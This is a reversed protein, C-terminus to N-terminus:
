SFALESERTGLSGHFSLEDEAARQIAQALQLISSSEDEDPKGLACALKAQRELEADREGSVDNNSKEDTHNVGTIDKQTSESSSAAKRRREKPSRSSLPLDISKPITNSKVPTNDISSTIKSASGKPKDTTRIIEKSEADAHSNGLTLRAKVQSTTFAKPSTVTNNTEQKNANSKRKSLRERLRAKADDMVNAPTKKKNKPTVPSYLKSPDHQLLSSEKRSDSSSEPSRLKTPDRQRVRIAPEDDLFSPAPLARFTESKKEPPPSPLIMHVSEPSRLKNPDRMRVPILPEESLIKPVPKAKFVPSAVCEEEKKTSPSPSRIKSPDQAQVPISVTEFNPMARARFLTEKEEEADPPKKSTTWTRRFILGSSGSPINRRGSEQITPTTDNTSREKTAFHFPDTTTLKKTSSPQGMMPIMRKSSFDPMPRAKFSEIEKENQVDASRKENSRKSTHGNFKFPEPTTLPRTPSKLKKNGLSSRDSSFDPMPKAKFTGIEKETQLDESNKGHSRQSTHHFQFPEPTTIPRSSSSTSKKSGLSTRNSSFDPAPKAKFTIEEKVDDKEEPHKHERKCVSFQFPKPTTIPRPHSTLKKVESPTSKSINNIKVTSAKFPHDKYYQMEEREKEVTSKPLPRKRIAQFQPTIPITMTKVSSAAKSIPSIADRLTSSWSMNDDAYDKKTKRQPSILPPLKGGHRKSTSLKPAKPITLTRNSWQASKITTRTSSERLGQGFIDVSSALSSREKKKKKVDVTTSSSSPDKSHIRRDTAFNPAIPITPTPKNRRVVPRNQNEKEDRQRQKQQQTRKTKNNKNDMKTQLREQKANIKAKLKELREQEMKELRERIASAKTQKEVTSRTTNERPSKGDNSKKRLNAMKKQIDMRARIRERAKRQEEEPIRKIRPAEHRKNKVAAGGIQGANSASTPKLLRDSINCDPRTLPRRRTTATTPRQQQQQQKTAPPSAGSLKRQAAAARRSRQNSPSSLGHNRNQPSGNGLPSVVTDLGRETGLPSVSRDEGNEMFKITTILEKPIPPEPAPRANFSRQQNRQQNQQQQQQQQQKRRQQARQVPDLAKTPVAVVPLIDKSVFQEPMDRVVKEGTPSNTVIDDATVVVAAAQIAATAAAKSPTSQFTETINIEHKHSNVKKKAPTSIICKTTITKIAEVASIMEENIDTTEDNSNTIKKEDDISIGNGIGKGDGTNVLSNRKVDEFEQLKKRREVSKSQLEKLRQQKELLLKQKKTQEEQQQQQQQHQEEEEQQRRQQKANDINDDVTVSENNNKIINDGSSLLLLLSSPPPSLSARQAERDLEMQLKRGVKKNTPPSPSYYSGDINNDNDYDDEGGTTGSLIIAAAATNNSNNGGGGGGGGIIPSPIPANNRNILMSSADPPKISSSTNSRHSAEVSSEVGEMAIRRVHSETVDASPHIIDLLVPSKLEDEDEDEVAAEAEIEEEQCKKEAERQRQDQDQDQDQLMNKQEQEQEHEKTAAIRALDRKRANEMDRELDDNGENDDEDDVEDKNNNLGTMKTPPSLLGALGDELKQDAAKFFARLSDPVFSDDDDDNDNDNNDEGSSGGDKDDLNVDADNDNDWGDEM